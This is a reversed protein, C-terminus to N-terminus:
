ICNQRSPYPVAACDRLKILKKCWSLTKMEWKLWKEIKFCMSLYLKKAPVTFNILM